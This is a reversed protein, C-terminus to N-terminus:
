QKKSIYYSNDEVTIEYGHTEALIRVVSGAPTEICSYTVRENGVTSALVLSIRGQRALELFAQRLPTEKFTVTVSHGLADTAAASDDGVEFDPLIVEM